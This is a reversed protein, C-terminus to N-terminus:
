KVKIKKVASYSSYYNTGKVTKYARVKVYYTKGKTLKSVTKSATKSTATKTTAKTFSKSTSYVIQYGTAGSVKSYTVKMKKTKPSTVKSIKTAKPNIKFTKSITGSYNGKGKITVTATGVAKNNKYSVTYDTGKKLTKTGLKVTPAPAIAKGTYVKNGIGSVSAKALSAAKISFTKNLTGTYNGKGTITVTATGANTNNKYAVSYDTGSVLTKTGVKVVPAPKIASGTYNAASIGTVSSSSISAANITFTKTVTGTYNGKGTVKVSATGKNTNASYTVTYDTNATLTKGGNKVTVAPTQASGTYTVSSSALTVDNASLAAPAITFTKTLEGQYNGMGTIYITATGANTNNEYIVEFDTDKVLTKGGNKVTVDPMKANGDFTYSNESLTIDTGVTLDARRITFQKTVSGTFNASKPTVTVTAYKGGFPESANVNNEYAIDFLSNDLAAEAGRFSLTVGPKMESGTYTYEDQSISAALQSMDMPAINFEVVKTGSYMGIGKFTATATGANVNNAYEVTYNGNEILETEGNKLKFTPIIESGTYVYDVTGEVETHNDINVKTTLTQPITLNKSVTKEVDNDADTTLTIPYKNLDAVKTPDVEIEWDVQIIQDPAVKEFTRTATNGAKNSLTFGEPLSLTATANIVDTTDINNLYATYILKNYVAQDKDSDYDIQSAFSDGSLSLTLPPTMNQVLESLGYYTSFTTTEGADLAREYWFVEVASDGNEEGENENVDSWTSTANNYNTFRVEDPPNSVDRLFSGQAIVTPEALDDFAQWSQPIDAGKYTKGVTVDGTGPVRFPASDNEGLMTDMMIKCGVNHSVTDNNAYIYSIKVVDGQGTAVNTLLEFKATVDIGNYKFDAYMTPVSATKDIKYTEAKFRTYEGDVRVSTQSTGTGSFGFLLTANDDRDNDPDGYTTGISFNENGAVVKVFENSISKVSSLAEDPDGQEVSVVDFGYCGESNAYPKVSIYSGDVTITKGALESAYYSHSYNSAEIHIYSEEDDVMSTKDSFTVKLCNKSEDEYVFAKGYGAPLDHPSKFDAVSSVYKTGTLLEDEDAEEIKVVDFGYCEDYASMYLNVYNGTVIITKGALENDYYYRNFDTGEINLSSVNTQESFTIKLGKAGNKRYYYSRNTDAAVNHESKFDSVNTVNVTDTAEGDYTISCDYNFRYEEYESAKAIGSDNLYAQIGWELEENNKPNLRSADVTFHAKGTSDFAAEAGTTWQWDDTGMGWFQLGIDSFDIRSDKATIAIDVTLTGCEKFYSWDDNTDIINTNAYLKGDDNYSAYLYAEENNRTRLYNLAASAPLASMMSAALAAASMGAIIRRKKM